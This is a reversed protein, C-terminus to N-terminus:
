RHRMNYEFDEDSLDSYTPVQISPSPLETKHDKSKSLQPRADQEDQDVKGGTAM